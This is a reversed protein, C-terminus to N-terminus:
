YAAKCGGCNIRVPISHYDIDCVEGGARVDTREFPVAGDDLPTNHSLLLLM